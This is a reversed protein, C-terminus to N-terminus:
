VYGPGVEYAAVNGDGVPRRHVNNGPLVAARRGAAGGGMLVEGSPIPIM